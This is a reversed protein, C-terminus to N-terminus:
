NKLQYINVSVVEWYAQSFGGGQAAVYAECTSFGTSAACSTDQGPVGTGGWVGAAWDGCLTTDFIASHTKFFTFPACNDAPWNGVPTGWNDPNPAKATIDSPVSSRPFFFVSIGSDDWKMAYVGGGASNFAGGFSQTNASRVGCGENNSEDAACNTGGVVTGTIGLASSSSTALTCGPNTHITAQNNTYTNVGEVIDIEGTAPWDPGNTWFAPWVACGTPMHVSDMIWLGGTYQSNTTIRVSQRTSAVQPTTEVGMIANGNSNIYALGASNATQQDVFNVVGHTPDGGTFFSWGDFFSNGSHSEVLKWPSSSASATGTSKVGSTTKTSGGGSSKTNTGNGGGAVANSLPPITCYIKNVPTDAVSRRGNFAIRLDRALGASHKLAARHAYDFAHAARRSLSADAEQSQAALLLILTLPVNSLM